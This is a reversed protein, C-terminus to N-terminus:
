RDVLRSQYVRTTRDISYQFSGRIGAVMGAVFRRKNLANSRRLVHAKATGALAQWGDKVFLGAAGLDRLRLHKGYFGGTGVGYSWMLGPWDEPARLGYHYAVIEPELLITGGARFLRYAFDFDQASQLPGGGGLVEDFGGIEEIRERRAAFNAAMGFTKFGHKRSLEQRRPILLIPILAVTSTGEFEPPTKVQGYILDVHPAKRFAEWISGIWSKPVLCDDDTFALVDSQAERIGRNYARSLGAERVHVYRLGPLRDHFRHALDRTEDNRSQDILVVEYGDFDQDALSALARQLHDARDRTCVVVSVRVGNLQGGGRSPLRGQGRHAM